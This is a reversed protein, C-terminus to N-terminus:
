TWGALDFINGLMHINASMRMPQANGRTSKRDTRHQNARVCSWISTSCQELDIIQCSLDMSAKDTIRNDFLLHTASIFSHATTSTM